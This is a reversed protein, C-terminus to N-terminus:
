KFLYCHKARLKQLKKLKGVGGGSVSTTVTTYADGSVSESTSPQGRSGVYSNTFFKSSKKIFINPRSQSNNPM